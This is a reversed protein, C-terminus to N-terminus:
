FIHEILIKVGIIILILGGLMEAKSKFLKGLVEGIYVAIICLVLTTLGIIVISSIINVSLFAFSVGVALADISTAIALIIFKKNSYEKIDEDEEDKKFSELFMKGGIFALLVFAVWHDISQIYDTFSIGLAWGIFPMLAQFGGFFLGAKVAMKIRDEKKTNMGVTLSVAFADMALGIGICFISILSM